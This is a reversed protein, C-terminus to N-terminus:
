RVSKARRDGEMTKTRRRRVEFYKLEVRSVKINQKEKGNRTTSNVTNPTCNDLIEPTITGEKKGKLDNALCKMEGKPDAEYWEEEYNKDYKVKRNQGGAFKKGWHESM